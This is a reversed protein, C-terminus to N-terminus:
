LTATRPSISLGGGVLSVDDRIANISRVVQASALKAATVSGGALKTTTIGSDALSLSVNGTTGGGTLGAGPTVGTITGGTTNAAITLTNGNPTISVIGGGVFSVDDKLSNISRVVQGPAIKSGILASGAIKDTTVASDAIKPTTVAKDSLLLTSVAGGPLTGAIRASDVFPAKPASLAFTATDARITRLSYGVSTLPTRPTMEPDSAVQVGIWYQRDFTVSSGFSTQDGLATYFLGEYLQLTKVESWIPSGGSSSLYLRFTFVYQGDAQPNGLPDTLVGQYAITRPIQAWAASGALLACLALTFCRLTRM